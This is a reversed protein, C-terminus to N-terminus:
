GCHVGENSLGEILYFGASVINKVKMVAKLKAVENSTIWKWTSLKSYKEDTIGFQSIFWSRPYCHFM